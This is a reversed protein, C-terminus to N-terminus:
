GGAKRREMGWVMWVCLEYLIYLPAAMLSQTVPDVTPTVIASVILLIVAVHRRKGALFRYSVLGLKALALIVVPFEFTLGFALLLKIVFSVYDNVQVFPVKVRMWESIGFMWKITVGLILRYGVAVGVIFLIVSLAMSNVVAKKEKKTLAPFVFRCIFFVIFPASLLLGVGMIVNMAISIGGTVDIVQLLQDPDRGSQRLPIKLLGLVHPALPVAIGMGVVLSALSWVVMVRLDEMHELFSKAASGPNETEDPLTM